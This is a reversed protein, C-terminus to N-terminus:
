SDRTDDKRREGIKNLVKEAMAKHGELHGRINSVEKLTEVYEVRLASLEAQTRASQESEKKYFHNIIKWLVAIAAVLAGIIAASYKIIEAAGM